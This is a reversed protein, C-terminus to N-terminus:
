ARRGSDKSRRLTEADLEARIAALLPHLDTYQRGYELNFAYDFDAPNAGQNHQIITELKDLAKALRAEPTAAAEYEDWLAVLETRLREPLPALLRLLDGREAASKSGSALQAPAPIDGGLAEGLDHLICIKLLKGLDAEPFGPHFVVAMLCLRWTHGAVSDRQGSSTWGSRLTDKLRESDRIFALLGELEERSPFEPSESM